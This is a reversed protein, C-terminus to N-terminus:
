LEVLLRPRAQGSKDGKGATQAKGGAKQLWDVRIWNVDDVFDSVAVIPSRTEQGPGSLTGGGEFTTSTSTTGGPEGREGLPSQNVHRHDGARLWSPAVKVRM